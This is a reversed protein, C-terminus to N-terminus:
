YVFKMIGNVESWYMATADGHVDRSGVGGDSIVTRKVGELKHTTCGGRCDIWLVRGGVTAVSTVYRLTAEQVKGGQPGGLLRGDV